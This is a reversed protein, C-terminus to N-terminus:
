AKILTPIHAAICKCINRSFKQIKATNKSLLNSFGHGSFAFSSTGSLKGRDHLCHTWKWKKGTWFFNWCQGPLLLPGTHQLSSASTPFILMGLLQSFTRWWNRWLELKSLGSRPHKMSDSLTSQPCSTEKVRFFPFLTCFDPLLHIGLM